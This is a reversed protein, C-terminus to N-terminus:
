RAFADLLAAGDRTRARWAAVAPQAAQALAAQLDAAPVADIAVGNERMRAYNADLRTGVLSWLGAETQGAAADVADRLAPDLARYLDERVVAFSLPFAYEVAAFHRLVEWLRRGAGGDGSSLVATFTGERLRPMAEGFSLEVAHAGARELVATSTADYTRIALGHLDGAGALATASWIGSAPWPVVYLLHLGRPAFARGYAGRALDALRRADALSGVLFPLSSLSLLPDVGDLTGSFTDGAEITGESLGALLRPGSFGAGAEFAPAIALAGGTRAAVASAFARLGEGPMATAPYETPMRWRSQAGAVLPWLALAAALALRGLGRRCALGM